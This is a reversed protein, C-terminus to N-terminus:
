AAKIRMEEMRRGPYLAEDGRFATKWFTSGSEGAWSHRQNQFRTMDQLFYLKGEQSQLELHQHAQPCRKRPVRSDQCHPPLSHLPLLPSRNVQLRVQLSCTGYSIQLIFWAYFCLHLCFVFVSGKNEQYKRLKMDALTRDELRLGKGDRVTPVSGVTLQKRDHRATAAM